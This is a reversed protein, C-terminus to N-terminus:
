FFRVRWLNEAYHVVSRAQMLSLTKPIGERNRLLQQAIVSTEKEVERDHLNRADALGSRPVLVCGKAVRSEVVVFQRNPYRQLVNGCFATAQLENRTRVLFRQQLMM